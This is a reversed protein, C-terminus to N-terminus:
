YIQKLDNLFVFFVRFLDTLQNIFLSINILNVKTDSSLKLFAVCLEMLENAFQGSGTEKSQDM